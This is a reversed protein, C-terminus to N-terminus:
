ENNETTLKENALKLAEEDAMELVLGRKLLVILEANFSREMSQARREVVAALDVPLRLAYNKMVPKSIM